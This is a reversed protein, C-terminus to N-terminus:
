ITQFLVAWSLGQNQWTNTVQDQVHQGIEKHKWKRNIKNMYLIFISTQSFYSAQHTNCPCKAIVMINWVIPKKFGNEQISGIPYKLVRGKPSFLYLLLWSFENIKQLVHLQNGVCVCHARYVCLVFLSFCVFVFVCSSMQYLFRRM